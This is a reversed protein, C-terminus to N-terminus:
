KHGWNMLEAAMLAATATPMGDVLNRQAYYRARWTFGDDRTDLMQWDGVRDQREWRDRGLEWPSFGAERLAREEDADM